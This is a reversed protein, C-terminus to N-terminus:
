VLGVKRVREEMNDIHYTESNWAREVADIIAMCEFRSLTRLRAVLQENGLESDEVEAWLLHATEPQSLHGNLANVLTFADEVTFTPLSARLLYYYRELDRRAIESTPCGVEKRENLAHELNGIARFQIQPSAMLVGSEKSARYSTQRSDEGLSASKKECADLVDIRENDDLGAWTVQEWENEHRYYRYFQGGGHKHHYGVHIAILTDTSLLVTSTVGPAGWSSRRSGEGNVLKLVQEGQDAVELEPEAAGTRFYTRDPSEFGNTIIQM